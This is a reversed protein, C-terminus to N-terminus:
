NDTKHDKPNSLDDNQTLEDINGVVGGLLTFVGVTGFVSGAISHNHLILYASLCIFLITVMSIVILSTWALRGRRKQRDSELKRRHKSEAIGNNIIEKSAGHYLKEYGELISPHPIPGSYMELYSIIEQKTENSMKSNNIQDVIEADLPSLKTDQTKDLDKSNSSLSVM